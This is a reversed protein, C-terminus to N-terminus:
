QKITFGKPAKLEGPDYMNLYLTIPKELGEYTIEYIDLLGTNNMLGNPTKFACCSGRRNYTITEGKPGLLANLFRRENLPGSSEKVGGVNIPNKPTYGYSDDNSVEKLLFTQENLMEPKFSNRNVSTTSGSNTQMTKKSGTCSSFIFLTLTFATILFYKM